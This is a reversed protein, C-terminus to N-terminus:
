LGAVKKKQRLSKAYAIHNLHAEVHKVVEVTVGGFVVVSM